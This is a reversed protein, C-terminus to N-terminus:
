SLFEDCGCPTRFSELTIRHVIKFKPDGSSNTFIRMCFTAVLIAFVNKYLGCTAVTFAMSVEIFRSSCFDM